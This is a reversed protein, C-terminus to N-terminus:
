AGPRSDGTRAATRAGASANVYPGPAAGPKTYAIWFASCGLESYRNRQVALREQIMRINQSTAHQEEAEVLAIRQALHPCEAQPTRAVRPPREPLAALSDTPGTGADRFGGPAQGDRATPAATPSPPAPPAARVKLLEAKEAGACPHDTYAIQGDQECKYVQHPPPPLTQSAAPLALSAAALAFLAGAGPGTAGPLTMKM